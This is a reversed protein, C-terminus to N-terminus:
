KIFKFSFDNFNVNGQYEANFKLPSFNKNIISVVESDTFTNKDMVKCWGCWDTYLDIIIKKGNNTYEVNNDLEIWEIKDQSYSSYIIFYLIFLLNIKM